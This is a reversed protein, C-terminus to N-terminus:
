EHLQLKVEKKRRKSTNLAHYRTQGLIILIKIKNNKIKVFINSKFGFNGSM